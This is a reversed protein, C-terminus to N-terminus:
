LTGLRTAGHGPWDEGDALQIFEEGPLPLSADEDAAAPLDRSVSSPSGGGAAHPPRSGSRRIVGDGANRKM